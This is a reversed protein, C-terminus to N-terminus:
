VSRDVQLELVLLFLHTEQERNLKNEEYMKRIMREALPFMITQATKGQPDEASAQLVVSMVAWFYYPTKPQVKFLQLATRQQKKYDSVRVYAMFLHSLLDENNPEKQTATEYIRCIDAVSFSCSYDYMWLIAVVPIM